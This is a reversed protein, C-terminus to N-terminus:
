DKNKGYYHGRICRENYAYQWDNLTQRNTQTRSLQERRQECERKLDVAHAQPTSNRRQPPTKPPTTTNSIHIPRDNHVLSIPRQVRVPQANPQMSAAHADGYHVQGKADTWRHVLRDSAHAQISLTAIVGMLVVIHTM